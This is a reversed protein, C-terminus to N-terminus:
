YSRDLKSLLWGAGIGLIFALFIKVLINDLNFMNSISYFFVYTILSCIIILISDKKFSKDQYIDNGAIYLRKGVLSGIAVILFYGLASLDLSDVKYVLPIDFVKLNPNVLVNNGKISDIATKNNTNQINDSIYPIILDYHGTHNNIILSHYLELNFNYFPFEGKLKFNDTSLPSTSNNSVFLPLLNEQSLNQNKIFVKVDTFIKGPIIFNLLDVPLKSNKVIIVLLDQNSKISMEKNVPIIWNAFLITIVFLGSTIFVLIRINKRTDKVALSNKSKKSM